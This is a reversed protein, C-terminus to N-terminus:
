FNTISSHRKSFITGVEAQPSEHFYLRSRLWDKRFKYQTRNSLSSHRFYYIFLLHLSVGRHSILAHQAFNHFIMKDDLRAVHPHFSLSMCPCNVMKWLDSSSTLPRLSAEMLQSLSVLGHWIRYAGNSIPHSTRLMLEPIRSIRDLSSTIATFWPSNYGSSIFRFNFYPQVFWLNQSIWSIQVRLQLHKLCVKLFRAVNDSIDFSSGDLISKTSCHELLFWTTKVQAVDELTPSIKCRKIM